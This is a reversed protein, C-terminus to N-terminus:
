VKLTGLGLDGCIKYVGHDRRVKLERDPFTTQLLERLKKAADNEIKRRVDEPVRALTIMEIQVMYGRGLESGFGASFAGDLKFLGDHKPNGTKGRRRRVPHLPYTKGYKEELFLDVAGFVERLKKEWEILNPHKM